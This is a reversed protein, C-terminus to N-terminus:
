RYLGLPIKFHAEGARPRVFAEGRRAEIGIRERFGGGLQRLPHRIAALANKSPSSRRSRLDM